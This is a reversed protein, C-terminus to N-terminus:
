KNTQVFDTKDTAQTDLLALDTQQVAESEGMAESEEVGEGALWVEFYSIWQTCAREKEFLIQFAQSGIYLNIVQKSILRITIKAGATHIWIMGIDGVSHDTDEFNKRTLTCVRVMLTSDAILLRASPESFFGHIGDLRRVFAVAPALQRYSGLFNKPLQFTIKTNKTASSITHTTNDSSDKFQKIACLYIRYLFMALCNFVISYSVSIARVLFKTRTTTTRSLLIGSTFIFVFVMNYVTFGILKTERFRTDVSRTKFALIIDFLLILANYFIIVYYLSNGPGKESACTWFYDGLGLREAFPVPPDVALWIILFLINPVIFVLGKLVVATDTFRPGTIPTKGYFLAYLRYNKMFVYGYFLSFSLPIICAGLYCQIATPKELMLLIDFSAVFLCALMCYGIRISGSRILVNNRLKITGVLSMIIFVLAIVFLIVLLIGTSDSATVFKAEVAPIFQDTPAQSSSGLFRLPHTETFNVSSFTGPVSATGGNLINVMDYSIVRDMNKDLIGFGSPSLYTPLSFVTINSYDNRYTGSNSVMVM